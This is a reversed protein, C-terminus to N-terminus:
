WSIHWYRVIHSKFIVNYNYCMLDNLAHFGIRAPATQRVFCSLTRDLLVRDQPAPNKSLSSVDRIIPKVPKKQAGGDDGTGIPSRRRQSGISRTLM